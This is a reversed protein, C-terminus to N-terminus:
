ASDCFELINILEVERSSLSLETGCFDGANDKKTAESESGNSSGGGSSAAAATADEFMWSECAFILGVLIAAQTAAGLSIGLLLGGIGMDMRFCLLWAMPLGLCYYSFINTVAGVLQRGAGRLIGGAVGQLGDGIVLFALLHVSSGALRVVESDQTFLAVFSRGQWLILPGIVGIELSL